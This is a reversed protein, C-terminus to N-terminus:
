VFRGDRDVIVNDSSDHFMLAVIIPAAPESSKPNPSNTVRLRATQGLALGAVTVHLEEGSEEVLPQVSRNPSNTPQAARTLTFSTAAFLAILVIAMVRRFSNMLDRKTKM